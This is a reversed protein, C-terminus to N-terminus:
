SSLGLLHCKGQEWRSGLVLPSMAEGKYASTLLGTLSGGRSPPHIFPTWSSLPPDSWIGKSAAEAQSDKAMCSPLPPASFPKGSKGMRCCSMCLTRVCWGPSGMWCTPTCLRRPYFASTLARPSARLGMMYVPTQVYPLTVTGQSCLEPM